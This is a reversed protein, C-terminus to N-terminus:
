KKFMSTYEDKANKNQKSEIFAYALAIISYLLTVVSLMILSQLSTSVIKGIVAFALFASSLVLLYHVLIRVVMPLKKYTLVGRFISLVVCTALLMATGSLALTVSKQQFCYGAAYIIFVFITFLICSDTLIKQIKKSMIIEM